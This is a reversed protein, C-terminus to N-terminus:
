DADSPGGAPVLGMAELYAKAISAPSYAQWPDLAIPHRDFETRLAVLLDWTAQVDWRNYTVYAPTIVGHATAEAKGHATGFLECAGKLRLKENTLAFALTRADLFHGNFASVGPARRGPRAFGMFARTSDQSRFCVRPQYPHEVRRGSKPDRDDLVLSFGGRYRGKANGAHVALRTLDFPLNFGVLLARAWYVIPYFIRRVFKARSWLQLTREGGPVVDATHTRVYRRLVGLGRPDRRALSDAYLFGEEVTLYPGDGDKAGRRYCGFTLQQQEDATTEVDFVLIDDPWGHPRRRRRPPRAPGSRETYARLAIPLPTTNLPGDELHAV